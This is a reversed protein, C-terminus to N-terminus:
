LAQPRLRGRRRRLRVGHPPEPRAASRAVRRLLHGDRVGVARPLVADRGSGAAAAAPARRGGHARPRARPGGPAAGWGATAPRRRRVHRHRRRQGRADRRRQARRGLPHGRVPGCVTARLRRPRPSPRRRPGHRDEDGAGAGIRSRGSRRARCKAVGRGRRRGSRKPPE